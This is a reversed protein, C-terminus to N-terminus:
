RSHMFLREWSAHPLVIRAQAQRYADEASLAEHDAVAPAATEGRGGRNEAQNGIRAAGATIVCAGVVAFLLKERREM